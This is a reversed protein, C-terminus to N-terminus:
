SSERAGPVARRDGRGRVRHPRRHAGPVRRAPPPAGVKAEFDALSMCLDTRNCDVFARRGRRAARRAPHGHVHQVPVPGDRGARGRLRARRARRRDLERVRRGGPRELGSWAAEFAETMPGESWRQRTSSTTGCRTCGPATAATSASRSAGSRESPMVRRRPWGRGAPPAARHRRAAVAREARAASSCRTRTGSRDVAGAVAARALALAPWGAGLLPKRLRRGGAADWEFGAALVLPLLVVLSAVFTDYRDMDADVSALMAVGLLMVARRSRGPSRRARRAAAARRRGARARPESRAGRRRSAPAVGPLAARGGPVLDVADLRARAGRARREGARGRLRRQTGTRPRGRRRRRARAGDRGSPSRSTRPASSTTSATRRCGARARARRGRGPGRRLCLPAVPPRRRRGDAARGGARPSRLRPRGRGAPRAPRLPHRLAPDHVGARLARISHCYLEGALKTATYLHAPPCLAVSEELLDAARTRTSGSRRPTSSGASERGGRRRSCTCRAARTASRPRSRPPRSRTRRRRGRGLPHRRPLRGDGAACGTSTARPRRSCRECAPPPALPAPRLHASPPRRGAAPRGRALRHLGPRRHGARGLGHPRDPNESTSRAVTRQAVRAADASSLSGARGSPPRARARGDTAAAPEEVPEPLHKPLLPTAVLFAVVVLALAWWYTSAFADALLGAIQTRARRRSRPRARRDRRRAAAWGPRRARQRAAREAPRHRDFRRGAPQHEADHQRARRGAAQRLTQMAGSFTPMMTAGMGLGMVFLVRRAGLLVHRGASSPSRRPVLHAVIVLGVPVIRGVGTKDTLRGAIPMSVMAGFGQPALLLGTDM